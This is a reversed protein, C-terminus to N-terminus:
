IPQWNQAYGINGAYAVVFKDDLNYQRSFSNFREMPMYLNSDVFNPITLLKKQDRIRPRIIKSFNEDITVIANNKNYVFSELTRLINITIKNRVLGQNIIFDPYIEQVNYIAKAGKIKAFIYGIIGITLPPSPALVIALQATTTGITVAYLH